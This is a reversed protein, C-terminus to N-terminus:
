GIQREKKSILLSPVVSSVVNQSDSDMYIACLMQMYSQRQCPLVNVCVTCCQLIKVDINLTRQASPDDVLIPDAGCCPSIM